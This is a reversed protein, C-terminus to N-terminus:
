HPPSEYEALAYAVAEEISMAKGAELTQTYRKEGLAAKAHVISDGFNLSILWTFNRPSLMLPSSAAAGSLRVAREYQKTQIACVVLSELCLSMNYHDGNERFIKLAAQFSRVASAHDGHLQAAKASAYARIGDLSHDGQAQVIAEAAQYYQAATETHGLSWAAEALNLCGVAEYFFSKQARAIEIAEQFYEEAQPWDRKLIYAHGLEYYSQLMYVKIGRDKAAALSKLFYEIAQDLEGSECLLDGLRFYGYYLVHIDRIKSTTQLSQEFLLRAQAPNGSRFQLDGLLQQAWMLGNLDGLELRIALNREAYAKAKAPDPELSVLLHLIEGELFRDGIEEGLALCKQFLDYAITKQNLIYCANGALAYLAYYKAWKGAEGLGEALILAEEALRTLQEGGRGLLWLMAAHRGLAEALLALDIESAEKGLRAELQQLWREAEDISGRFYWFMVLALILRIGKATEGELSWEVAARLNDLEAELRDLWEVQLHSRLHPKAKESLRLFADLHRDQMVASQGSDVLKEWAYLRITELRRYRNSGCTGSITYILSKHVLQTLGDLIDFEDLGDFGCVEVAEELTWGGKFVSLRMLLLRESEKLLSYSWDISARLTQLRPVATRSGGTLLRFRNDLLAAIQQVSLASARAAALEIALPIGDLRKCVQIVAQANGETIAFGPMVARARETFLQVAAYNSLEELPPLEGPAPVSLSPVAYAVEGSVGLAERSSALIKLDPCALLLTEAVRACEDILHECNDLIILMQKQSLYDKLQDLGSQIPSSQLGLATIITHAVLEPNALGALEALWVGDLFQIRLERAVHLALRTKGTGGVGTLTVLRNATIMECVVATEKERGIFSTLEMPLNHKPELQTRLRPFDQRLDPAVVQYFHEPLKWNRIHHEGLNRLIVGSPLSRQCLDASEQSLLIQGGHGAEMIRHGRNKTHSVAYEDGVEDLHAEGTHIGMRARLPGLENWAAGQLGRQAQLAAALAQPATPFAVQFEDGVVKFVVGGNVEIAQRLIANHIQMAADMAPPNQEWLPTNGEIDSFFFTVTGTPLGVIWTAPTDRGGIGQSGTTNKKEV